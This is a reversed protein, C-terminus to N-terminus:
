KVRYVEIEEGCWPCFRIETIGPMIRGSLQPHLIFINVERSTTRPYGKLGFGILIGWQRGMEECCVHVVGAQEYVTVPGGCGSRYCIRM